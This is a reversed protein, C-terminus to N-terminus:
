KSIKKAGSIRDLVQKIATKEMNLENLAVEFESPMLVKIQVEM